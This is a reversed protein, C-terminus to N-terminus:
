LCSLQAFRLAAHIRFRAHGTLDQGLIQHAQRLRYYLTTRHVNLAAATANVDGQRELYALVTEAFPTRGESLLAAVGPDIAAVGRPGWEYSYFLRYEGLSDWCALGKMDPVRAAVRAAFEAQRISAQLGDANGLVGDLGIARIAVGHHEAAQRAAKALRQAVGTRDDSVLTRVYTPLTRCGM